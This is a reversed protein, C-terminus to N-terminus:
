LLILVTSTQVTFHFPFFVLFISKRLMRRDTTLVKDAFTHQLVRLKVKCYIHVIMSIVNQVSNETSQSCQYDGSAM